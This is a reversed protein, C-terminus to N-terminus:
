SPDQRRRGAGSGSWVALDGGPLAVFRWGRPGVIQWAEFTPNSPCTLHTGDDFVIRLGGTKFAVSSLVTAGFLPLAASVDQSEPVLLVGPDVHVPGSSLRTPGELLVEWGADLALALRSDVNIRIISLGRLHLIWRDEHESPEEGPNTVAGHHVAGL